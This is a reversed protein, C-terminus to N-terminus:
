NEAAIVAVIDDILSYVTHLHVPNNNTMVSFAVTHDPNGDSSEIYGCLCAVGDMSGSKMWIRSKLDAPALRLRFEMTTQMEGPQPLSEKFAGAVPSEAMRRLFSVFFSPSVYNKRSLGSGDYLRCAGEPKLGMSKLAVFEAKRCDEYECSGGQNVCMTKFLTEAFFNDSQHNTQEVIDSLRPSFTSGIIVMDGVSAAKAGDSPSGLERRISGGPSVDAHGGSVGVGKSSLYRCFLYACTYAGFRNAAELTYGKRDIPFSGRVSGFPAFPTCEYLLENFSGNGSTVATHAYQMWPTDPYRPSIFPASGVSPGPTVMFTQENEFFNLGLPSAGYYSGIDEYLWGPCEMTSGMLYRPDGIVMGDVSNIGAKRIIALWKSFLVDRRDAKEFKSATTPDGGGIIYLNGVLTSDVVTGTYGIRTEFRFDEGLTSLALGTTIVKVNSAPVLKQSPNVCVLTDGDLRVALVGCVGTRLPAGDLIDRVSKQAATEPIAAIASGGNLLLAICIASSLLKRM